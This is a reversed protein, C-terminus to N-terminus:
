FRKLHHEEPKFFVRLFKSHMLIFIYSFVIFYTSAAALNRHEDAPENQAPM